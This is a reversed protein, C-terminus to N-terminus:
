DIFGESSDAWGVVQTKMMMRSLIHVNTTKTHKQVTPEAGRDFSKLSIGSQAPIAMKGITLLVVHKPPM